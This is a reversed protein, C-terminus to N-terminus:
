ILDTALKEHLRVPSHAANLTTFVERVAVISATVHASDVHLHAADKGAVMAVLSELLNATEIIVHPKLMAHILAAHWRLIESLRRSNWWHNSVTKVPKLKPRQSSM